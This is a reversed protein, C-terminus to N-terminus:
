VNLPNDLKVLPVVIMVLLLVVLLVVHRISPLTIHRSRQWANAGDLAATEYLELPVNQLAALFSIVWFPFGRWFTAIIVSPM